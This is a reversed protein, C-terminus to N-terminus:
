HQFMLRGTCQESSRWAWQYLVFVEVSLSGFSLWTRIEVSAEEAKWILMPAQITEKFLCSWLSDARVPLNVPFLQEM